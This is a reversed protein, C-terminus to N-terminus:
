FPKKRRQVQSPQETNRSYEAGAAQQQASPMSYTDQLQEQEASPYPRAYEDIVASATEQPLAPTQPKGKIVDEPDLVLEAGNGLPQDDDRLVTEEDIEVANLSDMNVKRPDITIKKAAAHVLTKFCMEEYYPGWFKDSGSKARRDDFKAKSMVLLLNDKEDEYEIYAFGGVVDGRDFPNKINLDYGEIKCTAGKKYVIFEDNSYVLEVRIDHVPRLSANRVYYIEGKYGIRLDIDYRGTAKNYYAIPYLHGPVLGDIGLKIRHASDIALKTMNVNAWEIPLQDEKQKSRAEAFAMDCKIFCHQLLTREYESMDVQGVDAAYQRIVMATFREAPTPQRTTVTNNETM